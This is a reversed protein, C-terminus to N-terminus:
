ERVGRTRPPEDRANALANAYLDRQAKVAALEALVDDREKQIQKAVAVPVWAGEPCGNSLLEANDWRLRLIEDCLDEVEYSSADLSDSRNLYMAKIQEVTQILSM